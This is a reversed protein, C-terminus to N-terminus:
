SNLQRKTKTTAVHNAPDDPWVHKPYRGKMEKKVELYAGQWFGALDATIQLPRQAPSLLELTVKQRGLAVSPSEKEGFVEQMRVSISPAQGPTYVIPKKSGTPLTYHTPLWGDIEQNLPWGLYADLAQKLDVKALDKSSQANHIFPALWSDLNDVLGQLSFDPWEHEPLWEIACRVRALWAESSTNWNLIKLQHKAVYDLLAQTTQEQSPSPMAERSLILQGIQQRREATLRGRGEDWEVCDHSRILAKPLEAIACGLQIQSSQSQFRMLDLAVLYDHGALPSLEDTCAGHGNALLYNDSNKRRQAVRDPYGLCAVEGIAALNIKALSFTSSLKTALQQCRKQIAAQMRHEGQKFRAASMALDSQGKEPEEILAVTAIATCLLKPEVSLLMSVQRPPLGLSQSRQALETLKGKADTLGLQSLLDKAQNILAKPPTDLWCLEGADACGWYLLELWLSSLDSRLIEPQPVAPQQNLQSESYLRVCIGEELRGARGRRQEASSQAIFVQELKTIGVKPQFRAIRELGSDVVMRIGDITLSTEAINTALVVKRRGKPAPAIASQQQAQNLQGYLPCIDVDSAVRSELNAAVAKISAVGPLFALLSGSESELLANIQKTMAAILNENTKLAAYRTEVPYQRGQSEIFCAEPLLTQLAQQDLTASMVLIKLDDRLAMQVELALALSTDAHLSREHFEDFIVLGVGNLEPDNQLLRTMVGETVIELQTQASVKSEGRIRYGVRQGLPEGLQKALYRAINRAALRRPELMIIKGEVANQEILTLPLQTSKGAGPAAKVILQQHSQLQQLLQPM